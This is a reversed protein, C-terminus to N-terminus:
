RVLKNRNNIYEGPTQRYTEKLFSSFMNTAKVEEKNFSYTNSYHKSEGKGKWRRRYLKLYVPKGSLPFSQLERPNCFGDLVISSTHELGKPVLEPLEELHLEIHESFESVEKITFHNAIEESLLLRLLSQNASINEM